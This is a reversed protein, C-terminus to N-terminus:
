LFKIYSEFLIAMPFTKWSIEMDLLFISVSLILIHLILDAIFVSKGCYVGKLISLIKKENFSDHSKFWPFM